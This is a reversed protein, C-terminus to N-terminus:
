ESSQDSGRISRVIDSELPLADFEEQQDTIRGVESRAAGLSEGLVAGVFGGVAGGTSAANKSVLGGLAAGVAAGIAAYRARSLARKLRNLGMCPLHRM